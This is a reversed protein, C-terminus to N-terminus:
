TCYAVVTREADVGLTSAGSELMQPALHRANPIRVPSKEYTAPDRVDLILPPQNGELLKAVESARIRFRNRKWRLALLATYAALSAATVGTAVVAWPFPRPPPNTIKEANEASIREVDPLEPLLRNAEALPREAGRHDGEFFRRLGAAWAKDFRGPADLTVPTGKLFERVAQAPIVFNFGQVITAQQGPSQRVLTLVGVVRGRDDVAPGGSNGWAAPADTQIVAQGAKDQKFGSITGSTASAEVRASANLLEHTLVVGPFGLIHLRDGIKAAASDSLPLTPMDPAELRLLALDPGSMEGAAVPPSYKVVKAPLRVGNALMVSISPALAIDAVRCGPRQADKSFRETLWAPPRHALSVVYGNTVLWGGPDAFWGTGMERFAPPTVKTEGGPCRLTVEGAVESVVLATGPRARLLVEQITVPAADAAAPQAMMLAALLLARLM